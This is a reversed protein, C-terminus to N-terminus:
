KRLVFKPATEKEPHAILSANISQHGVLCEISFLIFLIILKLDKNIHKLYRYRVEYLFM